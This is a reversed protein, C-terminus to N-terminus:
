FKWEQAYQKFLQSGQIDGEKELQRSRKLLAKEQQKATEKDPMYYKELATYDSKKM